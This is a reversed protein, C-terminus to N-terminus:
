KVIKTAKGNAVRIYIGREPNDVRQGQLNYYVAENAAANITTLGSQGGNTSGVTYEFPVVPVAGAGAPIYFNMNLVEGEEYTDTTTFSRVGDELTLGGKNENNIFMDGAVVGFPEGDTWTLTCEATLTKDANYTVSYTASYPYETGEQNCVNSYSGTYTQAAATTALMAFAAAILTFIKKM